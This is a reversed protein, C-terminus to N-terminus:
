RAGKTSHSDSSLTGKYGLLLESLVHPLWPVAPVPLGGGLWPGSPPFTSVGGLEQWTGRECPVCLSM